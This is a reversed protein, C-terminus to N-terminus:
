GRIADALLEVVHRPRRTTFHGIQQRCSVGTILVEADAAAAEVAPFLKRAGMARSLEYHEAEFGFSGAMGCCASDILEVSLGPVLGLVALTSEMGALAKQHCHGHLVAHSVRVSGFRSALSPDDRLATAILEDLLLAHSAVARADDGGVLEPYEDRLTLLCSPETGVIPVGRHAYPALRRVNRRAWTRATGLQGKSILPRGCCGLQDVVTVRYGLAELVRTAARGVEPHYADTFTDAFFVVEGRPSEGRGERTHEGFWARFSRPAFAPLPRQAAIGLSRELVRRMPALGAGLNLLPALPGLRVALRSWVGIHGFIRDRLPLGHLEHHKTLVEYKLKAMDVGSPCESKCAKCEVCLDLAEYIAQGALENAPLAGNLAQRLLNARGRTSHEEDRTVMYSPCMGGDDKRCAGQGNCQEAARAFGGDATFDLYTPPDFNTTHPSLRLNDDFAPTDVIKGPNLLGQPDFLRKVQRFADTVEPGFMRETFVGRLIGDGHEGSLSGGFELVLDAIESAIAEITRLGDARKINVLPRIHLCGVSAHGYYAATTGHARVIADFRDVFDALKSPDVAADEVFAIPKADGTVSMLIGLGAERMRWIRLQEGPDSTTHAAYGIGRAEMDAVLRRVRERVESRDDGGFEVVQLAGPEGKVFSVLSAFGASARCREIITRDVLEVTSPAHELIPLVAEAAARVSEFHLVTLAKAAPIPVLRVRAETIVALTGESGVILKSLDMAGEAIFQDLNYGSVRRQIHPFRAAIADRHDTAIQRVGRYLDGELGPLANLEALADGSRPGFTTATGDSLVVSVDLVQDLTKGYIVSHSGCSNNGIGGGITARNQTSPDIAYQLGHPRLAKNLNTLVIGPEVRAWRREVNVEILRDMYRSCDIVIAHNVAQGALSTGGGRTLVPVGRRAAVRVVHQIEEASRPYVVAVPEMEYISADTAFLLRAPRDVLVDARGGALGGAIENALVELAGAPGHLLDLAARVSAHASPARGEIVPRSADTTVM